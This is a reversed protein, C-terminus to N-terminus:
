RSSEEVWVDSQKIRKILAEPSFKRFGAPIEFLLAPQSEERINAVVATAGDQRQIKLPFKLDPDIWGLMEQDAPLIIRYRVVNRGDIMERGTRECRWEGNQDQSGAIGAMSHWQPCPDDPDVPVFMRALWSSQRADMFVRVSPRAFHSVRNLSDSVFFGDPFEPTEIRVKNNLARLKGVSITAGDRSSILDASFQQAQAAANCCALFGALCLRSWSRSRMMSSMIMAFGGKATLCFVAGILGDPGIPAAAVVEDWWRPL